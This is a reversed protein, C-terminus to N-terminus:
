AHPDEPWAHKPYRGRLEKRVAPYTNTWFSELSDTIQHCRGNPALLHFLLGSKGGALRPTRQWGFLEQIRAALIPPKGLEYTLLVKRGTPLTMQKPANEDLMHKGDIGLIASIVDRWPLKAVEDLSRLGICWPALETRLKEESFALPAFDGGQASLWQARLVTQQLEKDKRPLLSDFRRAAETALTLATEEDLPTEAPHEELLLDFWYVRQRSSVAKISPNFFREVVERRPTGQLWEGPIGVAKRVRAESQRSDADLCVFFEARSVCSQPELKVGRGGVMLGRADAAKRRKAVRDPFARFLAYQLKNSLVSANDQRAQTLRKLEEQLSDGDTLATLERSLQEAARGVQRMAGLDVNNNEGSPRNGAQVPSRFLELRKQIDCEVASPGSPGANGDQHRAHSTSQFNSKRITGTRKPRHENLVDRESLLAAALAAEDPIGLAKGILLCMALAPQTPLRALQRGLETVKPLHGNPVAGNESATESPINKPQPDLAGLRVLREIASTAADSRPPTLWDFELVNAEGWCALQLCVSSLEVRLVEPDLQKSRSRATIEDWLRYCNGPRTRGARGARQDASAISIPELELRNLGTADDVRQVRAYGSDVVTTVGDITLSTEAVNTALILRRTHTSELVKSQEQPSQSGYLQHVAVGAHEATSQIEAAVRRIEGVGPLFALLDGKDGGGGSANAMGERGILATLKVTMADVIQTSLSGGAARNRSRAYHIKVPYAVGSARVVNCGPLFRQLADSEITASMVIIRMDDRITSQIKRLMGILQDYELSREHFEDLVVCSVDELVPDNQLRRLLIGPTVCILQSRQSIKREFRVQYGVQEGLTIGQEDSIRQAATRAAIRRPQVLITKSSSTSLSAVFPAVRTTKGTGPPAQLLLNPSGSLAQEIEGLSKDIPLSLSPPRFPFTM